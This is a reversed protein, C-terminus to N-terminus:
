SIEVEFGAREAERISRHEIPVLESNPFIYREIYGGRRGQAAWELLRHGGSIDAIAHNLFLGGPKLANNVASLYGPLREDGVREMM